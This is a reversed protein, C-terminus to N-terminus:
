QSKSRINKYLYSSKAQSAPLKFIKIIHINHKVSCRQKNYSSVEKEDDERWMWGGIKRKIVHKLLCNGLLIRGIWNCKREEQVRHLVENELMRYWQDEGDKDLVM